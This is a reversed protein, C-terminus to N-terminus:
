EVGEKLEKLREYFVCNKTEHLFSHCVECNVIKRESM